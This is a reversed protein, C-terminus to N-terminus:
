SSLSTEGNQSQEAACHFLFSVIVKLVKLASKYITLAFCSTRLDDFMTKLQYLHVWAANLIICLFFSRFHDFIYTLITKFLGMASEISFSVLNLNLNLGPINQQLIFRSHKWITNQM